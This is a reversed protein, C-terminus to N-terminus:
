IRISLLSKTVKYGILNGVEFCACKVFYISAPGVNNFLHRLLVAKM